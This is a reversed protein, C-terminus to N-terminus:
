ARRTKREAGLRSEFEDLAAMFPEVQELHVYHGGGSLDRFRADPMAAAFQWAYDRSIVKDESGHLVLVPVDIRHLHLALKRSHLTPSWGLLGFTSHNRALKLLFEETWAASDFKRGDAYLWDWHDYQPISFLDTIERSRPGGFKAGIVGSVVLGSIRHTCKIAIEAAIWAGLSVGVLIFDQLRHEAIFDLYFYSLDDVTNIASPRSSGDFGPHSPAIM